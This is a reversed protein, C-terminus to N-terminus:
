RSQAAKLNQIAIQLASLVEEIHELKVAAALDPRGAMTLFAHLVDDSNRVLAVLHAGSPGYRASLWNKATRENAGTWGAAIKIAAHTSGLSRKLAAAIETAFREENPPEASGRSGDNPFFKGKKPFSM